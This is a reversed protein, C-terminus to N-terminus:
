KKTKQKEKKSRDFVGYATCPIGLALGGYAVGPLLGDRILEFKNREMRMNIFHLYKAYEVARRTDADAGGTYWRDSGNMIFYKYNGQDMAKLDSYLLESSIEYAKDSNEDTVISVNVVTGMEKEEETLGEKSWKNKRDFSSNINRAETASVLLDLKDPEYYDGGSYYLDSLEGKSLFQVQYQEREADSIKVKFSNNYAMIAGCGGGIITLALGVPLACKSIKKFFKLNEVNKSDKKTM